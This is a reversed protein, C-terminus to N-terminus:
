KKKQVDMLPLMHMCFKPKQQLSKLFKYGPKCKQRAVAFYPISPQKHENSHLCRHCFCCIYKASDAVFCHQLALAHSTIYSSFDYKDTYFKFSVSKKYVYSVMTWTVNQLIKSDCQKCTCDFGSQSCLLATEVMKDNTNYKKRKFFITHNGSFTASCVSCTVKDIRKYHYDRCIYEKKNTSCLLIENGLADKGMGEAFEYQNKTFFLHMINKTNTKCWVGPVYNHMELLTCKNCIHETGNKGKKCNSDLLARKVANSELNYDFANFVTAM